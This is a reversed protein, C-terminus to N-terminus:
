HLTLIRLKVLAHDGAEDTTFRVLRLNSERLIKAVVADRYRRKERMHSKDDLEIAISPQTENKDCLLFDISYRDSFFFASRWLSWRPTWSVNPKVVTGLHIQPFIYYRDGVLGELTKFFTHESDTMIHDKHKYHFSAM